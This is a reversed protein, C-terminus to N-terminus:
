VPSRGASLVTGTRAPARACWPVLPWGATSMPWKQGVKHEERQWPWALVQRLVRPRATGEARFTRSVSLWM